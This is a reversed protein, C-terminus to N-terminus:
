KAMETVTLGCYIHPIVSAVWAGDSPALTATGAVRAGLPPTYSHIM